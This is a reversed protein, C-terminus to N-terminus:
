SRPTSLLGDAKKVITPLKVFSKMFMQMAGTGRLAAAPHLMPVILRNEALRFVKGQDRTIKGTPIFYSMAFRGLTVIIKPKIIELQRTLYSKYAEIEEPFPDRNDPPRRKVINTIYVDERKWKIATLMKDVLQGSRGVFPRVLEDEKAGPAEGIFVVTAASSGEGFVLNTKLPLSADSAMEQQLKQLQEAKNM